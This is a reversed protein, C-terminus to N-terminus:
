KEAPPLGLASTNVAENLKMVREVLANARREEETTAGSRQQATMREALRGLELRMKESEDQFEEFQKPGIQGAKLRAEWRAAFKEMEELGATHPSSGCGGSFGAIIVLVWLVIARFLRNMFIDTM